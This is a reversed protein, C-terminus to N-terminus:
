VVCYIKKGNEQNFLKDMQIITKTTFCCQSQFHGYTKKSVKNAMSRNFISIKKKM